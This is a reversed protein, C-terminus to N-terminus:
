YGEKTLLEDLAYELIGSPRIEHGRHEENYKTLRTNLEESISIYLRTM